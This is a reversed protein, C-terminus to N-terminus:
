LLRSRQGRERWDSVWARQLQLEGTEVLHKIGKEKENRDGQWHRDEEVQRRPLYLYGAPTHRRGKSRNGSILRRPQPLVNEMLEITNTSQRRHNRIRTGSIPRQITRVPM